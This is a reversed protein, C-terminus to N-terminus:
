YQPPKLATDWHITYQGEPKLGAAVDFYWHPFYKRYYHFLRHGSKDFNFSKKITRTNEHIICHRTLVACVPNEKAVTSEGLIMESFAKSAHCLVSDYGWDSLYIIHYDIVKSLIARISWEFVLSDVFFAQQEIFDIGVAVHKQNIWRDQHFTSFEVPGIVCSQALKVPYKYGRKLITKVETFNFEKNSYRMDSDMM